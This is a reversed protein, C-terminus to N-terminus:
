QPVKGEKCWLEWESIQDSAIPTDEGVVKKHAAIWLDVCNNSATSSATAPRSPTAEVVGDKWITKEILKGTAPDYKELAGHLKGNAYNTKQILTKGNSTYSLLEGDYQGKVLHGSFILNGTNKDFGEELGNALGDEWSAKNITKGTEPSNILSQGNLKGDKFNAEALLSNEKDPSNFVFKGDIINKKYPIILLVKESGTAKCIADGDLLGQDIKVDCLLHNGGRDFLVGVSAKLLFSELTNTQSAASFVKAFQALGQTPMKNYQLNTIKGNFPTNDGQSYIKGNSIEANRYDLTKGCGALLIASSLLVCSCKFQKNM